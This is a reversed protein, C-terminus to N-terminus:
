LGEWDLIQIPINEFPDQKETEDYVRDIDMGDGSHSIVLGIINEGEDLLKKIKNLNEWKEFRMKLGNALLFETFEVTKKDIMYIESGYPNQCAYLYTKYNNLLLKKLESIIDKDRQKKWELNDTSPPEFHCNRNYIDLIPGSEYVHTISHILTDNVIEYETDFSTYKGNKANKKIRKYLDDFQCKWYDESDYKPCKNRDMDFSTDKLYIEGLFLLRSYLLHYELSAKNRKTLEAYGDKPNKCNKCLQTIFDKIPLEKSFSIVYSSSSSNSVFDNRIM